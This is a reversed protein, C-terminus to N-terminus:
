SRQQARLNVGCLSPDRERNLRSSRSATRVPGHAPHLGSTSAPRSPRLRPARAEHQGSASRPDGLLGRARGVVAITRNTTAANRSMPVSTQRRLQITEIGHAAM